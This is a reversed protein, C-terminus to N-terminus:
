PLRKSQDCFVRHRIQSSACESYHTSLQQSDRDDHILADQYESPCSCLIQAFAFQLNTQGRAFGSRASRTHAYPWVANGQRLANTAQRPQNAASQLNLLCDLEAPDFVATALKLIEHARLLAECELESRWSFGTAKRSSLAVGFFL